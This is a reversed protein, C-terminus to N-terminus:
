HVVRFTRDWRAFDLEKAHQAFGSRAHGTEAPDSAKTPEKMPQKWSFYILLPRGVIASAPVFGWYRSDESNDRNDGMVFYRGAPVTLEGDHIQSRLTIWWAPDVGPDTSLLTPFDDRFPDDVAGRHVAYPEKQQRGNLFLM